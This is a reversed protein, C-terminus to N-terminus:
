ENTCWKEEATEFHYKVAVTPGFDPKLTGFAVSRLPLNIEPGSKDSLGFPLM